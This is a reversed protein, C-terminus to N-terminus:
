CILRNRTTSFCRHIFQYVLGFTLGTEHWMEFAVLALLLPMLFGMITMWNFVRELGVELDLKLKFDGFREISEIQALADMAAQQRRMVEMAAIADIDPEFTRKSM